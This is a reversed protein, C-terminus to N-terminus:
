SVITSTTNQSTDSARPMEPPQWVDSETWLLNRYRDEFLKFWDPQKSKVIEFFPRRERGGLYLNLGVRAKERDVIMVTLSPTQDTLRVEIRNPFEKMLNSIISLSFGIEQVYPKRSKDISSSWVPTKGNFAADPNELILKLTTKKNQYLWSRILEHQGSLLYYLHGGSVFLEECGRLYLELPALQLLENEWILTPQAESSGALMRINDSMQELLKLRETLADISILGLLTLVIQEFTTLNIIGVFSTMVALLAGLATSLPILRQFQFWSLWTKNSRKM